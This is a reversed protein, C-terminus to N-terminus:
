SDTRRKGGQIKNKAMSAQIKWYGPDAPVSKICSLEQPPPDGKKLLVFSKEYWYFVTIIMITIIHVFAGQSTQPPSPSYPKLISEKVVFLWLYNTNLVCFLECEKVNVSGRKVPDTYKACHIKKSLINGVTSAATLYNM